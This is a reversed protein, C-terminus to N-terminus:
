PRHSSLQDLDALWASVLDLEAPAVLGLEVLVAYCRLLNDAIHAEGTPLELAALRHALGANHLYGPIEDAFDRMLDHPNREQRASPARFLVQWGNSWAVRMAVLGRWIDTMRFSCTSPLYLLPFAARWWTTNQSNTPSWSGEGLAVVGESRFRLPLPQTLCYVADVDPHDDVLGQQIPCDLSAGTAPDLRPAGSQVEQLPLGRPWVHRDTFARYVNVWGRDAVLPATVRRPPLEFFSPYPFNDDDTEVLVECGDALATLYAVNKRSYHGTPLLRALTFDSALQEALSLFRCGEVDYREPGVADGAVVMAWGCRRAGAALEHVAATPRNVTTLVLAVSM